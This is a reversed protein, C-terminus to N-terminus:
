LLTSIVVPLTLMASLTSVTVLLAALPGDGGMRVALIYTSTATPLAAMVILASQYVGGIGFWAALAYAMLPLLALKVVTWYVVPALHRRAGAFRLGAGIAILGLPLAADALLRAADFLPDPVAVGALNVALGAVIGWILPNRALEALLRGDGARSLQWVAMLNVLPILAGFLLAITAIGADGALTSIVAFGVYSNFRYAAQQGAAFAPPPLAFLRGAPMALVFGAVTFLVGAALMPVSSAVDLEARALACFLLPPFLVFYVFKELEPWFAGGVVQARRLLFGSVILAFDPLLVHAANM